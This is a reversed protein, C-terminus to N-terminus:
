DTFQPNASNEIIWDVHAEVSTYVGPVQKEGCGYGWNALGWLQHQKDVKGCVCFSLSAGSDGQCGDVLNEGSGPNLSQACIQDDLMSLISASKSSFNNLTNLCSEKEVGYVVGKRLKPSSVLWDRGQMESFKMNESKGTLGYGALHLETLSETDIKEVVDATTEALTASTASATSTQFDVGM